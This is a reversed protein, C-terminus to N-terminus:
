PVGGLKKVALALYQESFTIAGARSGAFVVPLGHDTTISIFKGMVSSPIADSEYRKEYVDSISAEIVVIAHEMGAMRYLVKRFRTWDHIVSSVADGLTKREITLYSELGLISYDGTVLKQSIPAFADADFEWAHGEQERTDIVVPLKAPKSM